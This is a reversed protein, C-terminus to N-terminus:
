KVGIWLGEVPLNVGGIDNVSFPTSSELDVWGDENSWFLTGDNECVIRWNYEIM